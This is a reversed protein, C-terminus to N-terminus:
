LGCLNAIIPTIPVMCFMIIMRWNIKYCDNKDTDNAHVAGFIGFYMLALIWLVFIFKM